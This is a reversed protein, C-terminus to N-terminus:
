FFVSLPVVYTTERLKNKNKKFKTGEERQYIKKLTDHKIEENTWNFLTMFDHMLSEAKAGPELKKTRMWQIFYAVFLKHYQDHFRKASSPCVYVIKRELNHSGIMLTVYSDYSDLKPEKKIPETTVLSRMFTYEKSEQNFKYEKNEFYFALFDRLYKKCPIKIPIAM